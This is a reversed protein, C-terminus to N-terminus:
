ALAYSISKAVNTAVDGVEEGRERDRECERQGRVRWDLEESFGTEAYAPAMHSGTSIGM